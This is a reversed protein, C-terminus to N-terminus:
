NILLNIAFSSWYSVKLTLYNSEFYELERLAYKVFSSFDWIAIHKKKYNIALCNNDVLSDFQESNAVKIM